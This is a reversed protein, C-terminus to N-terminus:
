SFKFASDDYLIGYQEECGHLEIYVIRADSQRWGLNYKRHIHTQVKFPLTIQSTSELHNINRAPFFKLFEESEILKPHYVNLKESADSNLWKRHLAHLNVLPAPWIVAVHLETGDINIHVFIQGPGVVSPLLVAVNLGKTTTDPEIWESISHLHQLVFSPSGDNPSFTFSGSPTADESEM